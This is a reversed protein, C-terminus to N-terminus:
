LPPEIPTFKGGQRMTLPCVEPYKRKVVGAKRSRYAEQAALSSVMRRVCKFYERCNEVLRAHCDPVVFTIKKLQTLLNLDSRLGYTNSELDRAYFRVDELRIATGLQVLIAKHCKASNPGEETQAAPSHQAKMPVYLTDITPDFFIRQFLLQGAKMAVQKAVDRGEHCVNVIDPPPSPSWLHLRPNRKNDFDDLELHQVQYNKVEVIRGWRSEFSMTWIMARIETPLKPFLPFGLDESAMPGKLGVM